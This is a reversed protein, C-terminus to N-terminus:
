NLEAIFTIIQLKAGKLMVEYSLLFLIPAMDWRCIINITATHMVVISVFTFRHTTIHSNRFVGGANVSRFAMKYKWKWDSSLEHHANTLMDITNIKLVFFWSCHSYPVLIISDVYGRFASKTWGPFKLRLNATSPSKSHLYM